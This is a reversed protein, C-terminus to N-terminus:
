WIGWNNREGEVIWGELMGFSFRWKFKAKKKGKGTEKNSKGVALL